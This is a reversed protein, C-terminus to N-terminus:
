MRIISYRTLFSVDNKYADFNDKLVDRIQNVDEQCGKVYAFVTDIDREYIGSEKLIRKIPENKYYLYNINNLINEVLYDVYVHEVGDQKMFFLVINLYKSFEYEVYSNKAKMVDSIVQDLTRNYTGIHEITIDVIKKVSFRNKNIVSNIIKSRYNLYTNFKDECDCSLIQLLFYIIHARSFSEPQEIILDIAHLLKEKFYVYSGYLEKVKNFRTYGVITLYEEETCNLKKLFNVYEEADCEKKQIKVDMSDSTIEFEISKIADNLVFSKDTPAKIYYAKGLNAKFLRGSRGVLNFFDFAEFDNSFNYGYARAPKTIIINETSTNVGELLTSTCLMTNYPENEREFIDLEMNRIGLQLNGCHVLFGREMAKVVYWKPHIEEKMWEIFMKTTKSVDTDDFNQNEYTNIYKPIDSANAFYVLTRSDNPITSLIRNTEKFREEMKDVYIPREEVENVVPSFTSNFMVPHKELQEINDVKSIFPALLIHKESKQVLYFYAFNLILKRDDSGKRDLKYVEDIVLLDIKGIKEFSTEELVRDHTVIFIKYDFDEYDVESNVNTFIKYNCFSNKYKRIIKRKYEDILALTPVVLFVTKPLVRAIYEFVVFTKGFSTPASLILGQNQQLLQLAIYQDPHLSINRDLKSSTIANYFLSNLTNNQTYMTLDLSFMTEANNKIFQTKDDAQSLEKIVKKRIEVLNNGTYM